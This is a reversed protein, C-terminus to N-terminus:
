WWLSRRWPRRRRPFRVRALRVLGACRRDLPIRSDLPPTISVGRRCNDARLELRNFRGGFHEMAPGTLDAHRRVTAEDVFGDIASIVSAVPGQSRDGRGGGEHVGPTM